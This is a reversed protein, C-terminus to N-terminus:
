PHPHVSLDGLNLDKDLRSQTGTKKKIFGGLEEKASRTKEQWGMQQAETTTM